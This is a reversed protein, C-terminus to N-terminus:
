NTVFGRDAYLLTTVSQTGVGEEANNPCYQVAPLLLTACHRQQGNAVTFVHCVFCLCYYM